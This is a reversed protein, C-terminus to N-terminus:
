RCVSKKDMSMIDLIMKGMKMKYKTVRNGTMRDGTKRKGTKRVGTMRGKTMQYQNKKDGSMNNLTVKDKSEQRYDNKIKDSNKKLDCRLRM